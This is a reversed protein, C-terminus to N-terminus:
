TATCSSSRRRREDRTLKSREFTAPDQPDPVEEGAFAAFSAFERRRGERTAIPSRRTSTTPSSSSRRGSATSTAWSSCRPSPSVAAHLLRRAAAGRRAAPRRARPQRGPRPQRQLRRVARARLGRGPRRLPPPPVDLLRRRPRAPPPLGQGPRRRAGFEAYYGETDGTLLVRLAHHFDDAWAADCGWGGQGAPAHGEPRQPRVRRDRDRQPSAAHVRRSIAAVLHEAGQLRLHRPHRRPAPRRRPLRTIWREASQLVWERVPDSDEDDFNM